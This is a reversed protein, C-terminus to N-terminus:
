RPAAHPPPEPAPVRASPLIRKDAPITPEGFIWGLSGLFRDVEYLTQYFFSKVPKNGNFFGHEQNEYLFLDCRDGNSHMRAQYERATKVPVLKDNTGLFVITSPTGPKLNHLPSISPFVHRISAHGFGGPSNDFVPNFLVLADPASSITTDEGPEDFGPATAVAAAVHGGASGGGAAIRTADIGLREANSRVWRLASKGDQVCEVPTTKHRSKVRYDASMAVVGRSALYECQEHFQATSGGVWGGGFFLVIAPYKKSADRNPPEFIDMKLTVDGVQKYIEQRLQSQGRLAPPPGPQTEESTKGTASSTMPKGGRVRNARPLADGGPSDSPAFGLPRTDGADALAYEEGTRPIDHPLFVRQSLVNNSRTQGHVFPTLCLSAFFLTSLSKMFPTAPPSLSRRLPRTCCPTNMQAVTALAWRFADTSFTSQRKQVRPTVSLM